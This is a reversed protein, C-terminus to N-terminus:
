ESAEDHRREARIEAQIGRYTLWAGGLIQVVGMWTDPLVAVGMIMVILGMAIRM